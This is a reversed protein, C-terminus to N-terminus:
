LSDLRIWTPMTCTLTTTLTTTFTVTDTLTRTKVCIHVRKHIRMIIRILGRISTDYTLITTHTCIFTQEYTHVTRSHVRIRIHICHLTHTDTGTYLILVYVYISLSCMYLCILRLLCVALLLVKFPLPLAVPRAGPLVALRALGPFWDHPCIVSSVYILSLCVAYHMIRDGHNDHPLSRVRALVSPSDPWATVFYSLYYLIFLYLISAHLLIIYYLRIYYLKHNYRGSARWPPRRTPGPRPAARPPAPPPRPPAQLPRHPLGRSFASVIKWGFGACMLELM